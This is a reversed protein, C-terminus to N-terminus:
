ALLDYRVIIISKVVNGLVFVEILIAAPHDVELPSKRIRKRIM